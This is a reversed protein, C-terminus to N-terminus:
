RTKEQISQRFEDLPIFKARGEDIQRQRDALVEGHWPPSPIDEPNRSLDAWLVEIAQLKEAVTMQDLPLVLEM